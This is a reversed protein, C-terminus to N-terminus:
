CLNARIVQLQWPHANTPMPLYGRIPMRSPQYAIPVGSTRAEARSSGWRATAALDGAYGGVAERTGGSGAQQKVQQPVPIEGRVIKVWLPEPPAVALDGGPTSARNGVILEVTTVRAVIAPDHRYRVRSRLGRGDVAPDARAVPRGLPREGSGPGRGPRPAQPVRTRAARQRAGGIRASPRPDIRRTRFMRDGAIEQYERASVTRGIEAALEDRIVRREWVGSRWLALALITVFPLFVTLEFLSGYLFAQFFGLSPATPTTRPPPEGAAAAAIAFFLPLANNLAHALSPSRWAASRRSSGCGAAARRCPSGSRPASSRPSSRTDASGSCRMAGASSCEGRRWAPRRMARRSTSRRRSGRSASASSRATSSATACTTSSTACCGSSCSCASRRPPRRSSRRRSRRRSCPRRTPASCKESADPKGDGLCGGAARVRHQVAARARDRDLRGLLVRRRVAVADRARAPRPVVPDPAARARAPQLPAARPPVRERRGPAHRRVPQAPRAGRRRAPDCAGHLACPVARAPPAAVRLLLPDYDRHSLLTM